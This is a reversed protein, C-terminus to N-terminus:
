AQVVRVRTGLRMAEAAALYTEVTAIGEGLPCLPQGEGRIADVFGEMERAWEPSGRGHLPQTELLEPEWEASKHLFGKLTQEEWHCHISGELGYVYLPLSYPMVVSNSKFVHGLAGSTFRLVAISAHESRDGRVEAVDGAIWRLLDISHYAAGLPLHARPDSGWTGQGTYEQPSPKHTYNSSVYFVEGVAGQDVRHKADAFTQWGRVVHGTAMVVDPHEYLGLRLARCENTTMCAPTEGIAHKGVRMAALLMPAHLYHPTCLSFADIGGDSLAEEYTSYVTTIGWEEAKARSAQSRAVAAVVEVKDPISSYGAYHNSGTWGLGVICVRVKSM